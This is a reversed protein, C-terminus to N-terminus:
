RDFEAFDPDIIRKDQNLDDIQAMEDDNLEFDFIDFNEEIHETSSAKPIAVINKQILWRLAVQGATKGRAKGIQNLTQDDLLEGRALPSYATLGIGHEKCFDLLEEQYLYPHFEVQNMVPTFGKGLMEKLHTVTFNSVGVNKVEPMADVAKLAEVMPAGTKPWHLLVLDLYDTGLENLFRKVAETPNDLDSMWFKTTIFLQERPVDKIAEKIQEHNHYMDATDIHTYGVELAKEVAQTCQEGKLQWTGFGLIPIEGAQLTITKMYKDGVACSM